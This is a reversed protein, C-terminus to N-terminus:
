CPPYGFRLLTPAAQAIVQPAFDSATVTRSRVPQVQLASRDPPELQLFNALQRLMALPSSVADEYRVRMYQQGLQDGFDAAATNVTAWLQLSQDTPALQLTTPDLVSKGHLNLQNQNASNSMAFGDRVVHLFRANPLLAALAPWLYISRPNKWGWLMRPNPAPCHLRLAREMETDLAEMHLEGALYRNIFHDYIAVFHLADESANVHAGMDVGLERLMQVLMRTGSGGTGGVILPAPLKERTLWERCKAQVDKSLTPLPPYM